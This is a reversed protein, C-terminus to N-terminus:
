PNWAHPGWDAPRFHRLRGARRHNLSLHIGELPSSTRIPPLGTAACSGGHGPCEPKRDGPMPAWTVSWPHQRGVRANLPLM